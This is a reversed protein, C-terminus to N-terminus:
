GDLWEPLEIETEATGFLDREVRHLNAICKPLDESRADLLHHDVASRFREVLRAHPVLERDVMAEIDRLDNAHFRKLKSVVVDVVHLVEVHFCTLRENLEAPHTWLPSQPLLPLGSPVVEIYIKHRRHLASGPGAHAELRSRLEPVLDVSELVDTDKTGREYDAQLMLATSGIVRLRHKVSPSTRWTRDLDVVFERILSM